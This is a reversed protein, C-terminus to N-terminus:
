SLKLLLRLIQWIRAPSGARTPKDLDHEAFRVLIALPRMKAPIHRACGALPKALDLLRGRIGPDSCHNAFDVLAWFYSAEASDSSFTEGVIDFGARFLGEGRQRAYALLQEDSPPWDELLTEWGNVLTLLDRTKVDHRRLVDGMGNLVPDVAVAEGPLGEIQERWWAMRIAGLGPERSLSVAKGLSRDLELLNRLADRVGGSAYVLALEQDAQLVTM